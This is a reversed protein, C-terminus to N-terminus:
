NLNFRKKYNKINTKINSSDGWLIYYSLHAPSMYDTKALSKQHRARYKDRRQKDKHMTYDEYGKAGFQVTKIKKGQDEYFIATFKKNKATSPKIEVSTM